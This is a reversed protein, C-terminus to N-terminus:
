FAEGFGIYFAGGETGLAYDMRLNTNNERDILFRFGGGYSPLLTSLDFTKGYVTGGGLFAVAGFRKYVKFRYEVQTAILNRDRFRGNYYGRFYSENGIKNYNGFGADATNWKGYFQLAFLHHSSSDLAIFKRIDLAYEFYNKIGEENKPNYNLLKGGFSFLM